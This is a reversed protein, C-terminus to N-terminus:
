SISMIDVHSMLLASQFIFRMQFLNGDITAFSGFADASFLLGESVEYSMMVEPWHVNPTM